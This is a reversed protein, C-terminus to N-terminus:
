RSLRDVRSADDDGMEVVAEAAFFGVGILGVDNLKAAAQIDRAVHSSPLIPVSPFGLIKGPLFYPPGLTALGM